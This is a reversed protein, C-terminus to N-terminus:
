KIAIEPLFTQLSFEEEQNVARWTTYGGSLNFVKKFGNQELIRQALYGRQGVACYVILTEDVPLENMRMRLEDVPINIAGPISGAEYEKSTRVDILLTGYNLKLEDFYVPTMLGQLINEAVFGAMNVPDKASSFPPAYAHEHETLEYINSGRQIVTSLMEMRKDVGDYGAIQASLLKGDEPSFAIQIAM